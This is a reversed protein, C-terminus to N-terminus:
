SHTRNSHRTLKSFKTRSCKVVFLFFLVCFFEYATMTTDSVHISYTFILGNESFKNIGRAPKGGSLPTCLGWVMGEGGKRKKTGLENLSGSKGLKGIM